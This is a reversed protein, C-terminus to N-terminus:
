DNTQPLISTYTTIHLGFKGTPSKSNQHLAALRMTFEHPDPMEKIMERYECLYFHTDPITEYTGWALPKPVFDPLLEHIAKMSEFEGHIMNKGIDKSMVKIFFSQPVGDALEVNTPRHQGLLQRWAKKDLSVQLRRTTRYIPKIINIRLGDAEFGVQQLVLTLEPTEM